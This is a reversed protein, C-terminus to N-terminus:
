LYRNLLDNTTYPPHRYTQAVGRSFLDTSKGCLLTYNENGSLYKTLEEIESNSNNYLQGIIKNL